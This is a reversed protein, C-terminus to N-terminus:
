KYFFYYWVCRHDILLLNAFYLVKGKKEQQQQLTKSGLSLTSKSEKTEQSLERGEANITFGLKAGHPLDKILVDFNLWENWMVEDAFAKPQSSVSSLVKNGYLISASVYVTQLCKNPLTPIDFGLLKVRLKRNCDWVSIKLIDELNKGKLCLDEQFSFQASSDSILPWDVFKVTQDPLQSVPVVSLHLDHKNKLCQRVWLFDSLPYEGSLFEERGSIKFVLNDSTDFHVKQNAMVRKFVKSLISPTAGLDVQISFSIKNLFHFTVSLKFTPSDLFDNPLPACTIWPETAYLLNDRKKLQQTRTAALKRRTFVPESLKDSGDEELNHGILYALCQQQKKKVDSNPTM